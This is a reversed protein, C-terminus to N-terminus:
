IFLILCILLYRRDDTLHTDIIHVVNITSSFLLLFFFFFFLTCGYAFEKKRKQTTGNTRVNVIFASYVRSNSRSYAVDFLLIYIYIYMVLKSLPCLVKAKKKTNVFTHNTRTRKREENEINNFTCMHRRCRAFVAPSRCNLYSKLNKTRGSKEKNYFFFIKGIWKNQVVMSKSCFFASSSM